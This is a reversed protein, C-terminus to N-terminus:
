FTKISKKSSKKITNLFQITELFNQNTNEIATDRDIQAIDHWDFVLNGTLVVSTPKKDQINTVQIDASIAAKGLMLVCILIAIKKM